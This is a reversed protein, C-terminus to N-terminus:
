AVAGRKSAGWLFCSIGLFVLSDKGIASTWVHLGPLFVALYVLPSPPTDLDLNRLVTKRCLQYLLVVGIYGAIHYLMFLDLYSAGLLDRLGVTLWTVFHTGAKIEATPDYPAAYYSVAGAGESSSYLWYLVSAATHYHFLLVCLSSRLGLAIVVSLALGLVISLVGLLTMLTM